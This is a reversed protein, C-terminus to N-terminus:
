NILKLYQMAQKILVAAEARTAADQPAFTTATKGHVLGKSTADAVASRAYDSLQDQDAFQTNTVAEPQTDGQVLHVAKMMMVVMQERTIRQDPNFRDEGVGQVLGYKAATGVESAYWQTAAVDTFVSPTTETPLGLGRVLLAAFQARTVQMEPTYARDTTGDIVMKSALNEVDKQAWHGNMDDFTKKNQVIAYLSNTNRTITAETKGNKVTFVSPVFKLEGTIPDYVVATAISSDQITGDVNMVRTIFSNGFNTIEVEKDKAKLIVKYDIMDSVRKMGKNAISQEFQKEHQSKAKDMRIILTAGEVNALSAVDERNLISLPLNYSGLHSRLTLVTGKNEKMSNYLIDLPLEAANREYEGPMEFNLISSAEAKLDAFKQALRERDIIATVVTQSEQVPEIRLETDKPVYKTPDEKVPSATPNGSSSSSGSGSSPDPGSNDNQGSISIAKVGFVASGDTATAVVKVTGDKVAKLVGTLNIIAKDTVTAGDAEYVAWTVSKNMAIVPLVAAQLQLSGNKAIIASVNGASTINITAVKVPDTGPDIIDTQGSLTIVKEGHVGSGDAAMAVVKVTGDKVAKLLGTQDIVSKDTATGGVEYVSWTVSPNTAHVPLVAANLQLSGGKTNIISSASTVVVSLVQVTAHEVKSAEFVQLAANLATTAQEFEEQTASHNDAVSQADNIATQLAQKSGTGYNGAASGEVAADHKAQANAILAVLATKHANESVTVNAVAHLETGAVTGNVSFSGAQEYKAPDISEWQVSKQQTTADSYKVTVVAPLEPEIGIPTAVAVPIIETIATNWKAYLTMNTGSVTDVVFNWAQTLAADKYWDVFTYGAKTPAAPAAIKSGEDAVVPTVGSGGNSNFSVTSTTTIFKWQQNLSGNDYWQLALAGDATSGGDLDLFKGSNRNKIKFYGDGADVLQWQQNMEKTGNDPWQINQAGDATSAGSIDMMKGSNVNKIKFYGNGTAIVQFKQSTLGSFTRQEIRAGDATSNGEVTLPKNSNRSVIQYTKTLDIPAQPIEGSFTLKVVYADATYPQTPMTIKLGSTDQTPTPLDIYSGATAGLLQVSTLKSLNMSSSLSTINLQSGPWGLVTAYLTNNAKNRTFRIDTNKGEIPTVFQGGGMSTPGEGYTTWPRTSYISEGFKKLYDGMGLLIDKQAQPITGDATPSVNLLMNGNKSVRDILSHLMAQRSYYEIGNTYSWSSSSLADDTLWYPTVIEAPGGREYDVVEGNTNFAPDHIKYTAVVEKNWDIAKNYYYSLFNLRQTEAVKNVDFDQWLIDPQYGDIVEKLKDYWLQDSQEKPLKGYLKQLSTTSPTPAYEYFGNFNYAHHMSALLKMDKARIATAFLGLLDLKPGTQVSNWENVTSNWMSYGDHHEAVPGAFKAGADAFLQAWENPDFNGGASKLKPAFQRFVGSKDYGGTIFKDYPFETPTGFTNTHYTNVYYDPIYMNRGYWENNFAPVSFAGWHFYIGFKADQFWEPSATHTDVSAWTPQYTTAANATIPVTCTLVMAIMVFVTLMRKAYGKVQKM